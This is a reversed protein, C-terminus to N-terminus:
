LISLIISCLYQPYYLRVEEEFRRQKQSDPLYPIDNTNICLSTTRSKGHKGLEVLNSSSDSLRRVKEM